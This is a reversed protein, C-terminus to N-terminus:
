YMLSVSRSPLIFSPIERIGPCWLSELHGDRWDKFEKSDLLWQGTGVERKQFFDSHIPKFNLPTVWDAINQKELDSPCIHSSSSCSFPGNTWVLILLPSIPSITSTALLATSSATAQTSMVQLTSFLRAARRLLCTQRMPLQSIM